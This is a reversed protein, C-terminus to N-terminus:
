VVMELSTKKRTKTIATTNLISVKYSFPGFLMISGDFTSETFMYIVDTKVKLGSIQNLRGM